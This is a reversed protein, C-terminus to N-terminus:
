DDGIHHAQGPAPHDFGQDGPLAIGLFQGLQRMAPDFCRGLFQAFRQAAAEGPMVAKQQAQMQLLDVGDVRRDAGDILLDVSLDLGKAGGDVQQGGNRPDVFQASADDKGLDAAVHAAERGGPVQDRPGAQARSVVLTSALPTRGAHAFACGPELGGEDLAGRGSGALFGAIQLRQEV